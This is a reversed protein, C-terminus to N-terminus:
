ILIISACAFLCSNGFYGDGEDPGDELEDDEFEDIEDEGPYYDMDEDDDDDGDRELWERAPHWGPTSENSRSSESPGGGPSIRPPDM